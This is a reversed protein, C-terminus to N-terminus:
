EALLIKGDAAFRRIADRTQPGDLGDVTGGYYGRESLYEQYLRVRAEGGLEMSRVYYRMAEEQNGLLVHAAAATDVNDANEDLELSRTVYDLAARPDRVASDSAAVLLWAISNLYDSSPDIQTAVNLDDRAADYDDTRMYMLGRQHWAVAMAPDLRIAEGFSEIALDNRELDSAAYGRYLYAQPTELGEELATEADALADEPQDNLLKALARRLYLSTADPRLELAKDFAAVAEEYADQQMLLGGEINYIDGEQPALGKAQELDRYAADFNEMEGHAIARSIYLSPEEPAIQIADDLDILALRHEGRLGFVRARSQLVGVNAPEIELAATFDQLAGSYDFLQRKAEGRFALAAARGDPSLIDRELLDSCVELREQARTDISICGRFLEALDEAEEPTQAAAPAAHLATGLFLIAFLSLIRTM